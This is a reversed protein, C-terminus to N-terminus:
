EEGVNKDMKLKRSVEEGKPFTAALAIPYIIQKIELLQKSYDM